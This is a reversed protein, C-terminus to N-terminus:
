DKPLLGAKELLAQTGALDTLASPDVSPQNMEDLPELAINAKVEASMPYLMQSAFAQQGSKSILWILLPDATEQETRAAVVIHDVFSGADGAAFPYLGPASEPNTKQIMAGVQLSALAGDLQGEAVAQAAAQESAFTKAGNQAVAELWKLTAADGQSIRMVSIMTQFGADTPAWGLRNKWEPDDIQDLGDPLDDSDIATKSYILARPNAALSAWHGDAAAAEPPLKVVFDNPLRALEDSIALIPGLSSSLILDGKGAEVVTVPTGSKQLVTKLLETNGHLEVKAPEATAPIIAFASLSLLLFLTCTSRHLFLPLKMALRFPHSRDRPLVIANQTPGGHVVGPQAQHQPM